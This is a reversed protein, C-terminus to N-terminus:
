LVPRGDFIFNETYFQLERLTDMCDSISRHRKAPVVEQDLKESLDPNFLKCLEKLTSVDINRYHFQQDISPMQAVFFSRDFHVSSGTMPTPETNVGHGQLFHVAGEEAEAVTVGAAEAADICGSEEHMKLVYPNEKAREWAKDYTPSEWVLTEWTDIVQFDLDCIVFGIEIIPHVDPELGMTEIDTVVLREGTM